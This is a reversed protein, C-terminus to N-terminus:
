GDVISRVIDFCADHRQQAADDSEGPKSPIVHAILSDIATAIRDPAM